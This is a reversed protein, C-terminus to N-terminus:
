PERRLSIVLNRRPLERALDTARDLVRVVPINHETGHREARRIRRHLVPWLEEALDVKSVGAMVSRLSGSELRARAVLRLRQDFSPQRRRPDVRALARALQRDTFHAFEFSAVRNSWTDVHVLLELAERVAETRHERAVTRMIRELWVARRRERDHETRMPGEADSVVLIRTPPRLLRLVRGDADQELRPAATYAVLANLDKRVGERNQIAIFDDHTRIGFMEMVRPFLMLETDGEVV